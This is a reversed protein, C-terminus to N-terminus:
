HYCIIIGVVVVVVWTRVWRREVFTRILSRKILDRESQWGQGLGKGLGQGPASGSSVHGLLTIEDKDDALGVTLRSNTGRARSKSMRLFRIYCPTIFCFHTLFLVRPILFLIFLLSFPPLPLPLLAIHPFSFLTTPPLLFTSLLFLTIPSPNM